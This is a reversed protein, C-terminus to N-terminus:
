PQRHDFSAHRHPCLSAPRPTPITFSKSLSLLFSPQQSPSIHYPIHTPSQYHWIQPKCTLKPPPFSRRHFFSQPLSTKTKVSLPILTRQTQPARSSPSLDRKKKKTQRKKTKPIRSHPCITKQGKRKKKNKALAKKGRTHSIKENNILLIIKKKKLNSLKLYIKHDFLKFDSQIKM